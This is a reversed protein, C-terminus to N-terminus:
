NASPNQSSQSQASPPAQSQEPEPSDPVGQATPPAENTVSVQPPIGKARVIAWHWEQNPGPAVDLATRFTTTASPAAEGKVHYLVTVDPRKEAMADFGSDTKGVAQILRAQGYYSAEVDEKRKVITLGITLERVNWETGNYVSVQLSDADITAPGDLKVLETQPLDKQVYPSSLLSSANASFSLSCTVDPASVQFNRGGPEMSFLLSSGAVRRAEAEDMLKDFNDNDIVTQSAAAKKRFSRALDGLSTDGADQQAVVISPLFTTALILCALVATLHNRALSM